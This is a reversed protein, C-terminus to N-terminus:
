DARCWDASTWGEDYNDNPMCTTEGTAVDAICLTTSKQFDDGIEIGWRTYLIQTGDPSWAPQGESIFYSYDVSNLEHNGRDLAVLPRIGTGDVAM